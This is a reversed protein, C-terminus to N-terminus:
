DKIIHKWFKIYYNKDYNITKSNKKYNLISLKKDKLIKKFSSGIFGSAGYIFVKKYEHKLYNM